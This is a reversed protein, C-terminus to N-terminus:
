KGGEVVVRLSGRDPESPDQDVRLIEEAGVTVADPMPVYIPVWGRRRYLITTVGDV